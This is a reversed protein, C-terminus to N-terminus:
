NGYKEEDRMEDIMIFYEDLDKDKIVWGDVSADWECYSILTNRLKKLDIMNYRM